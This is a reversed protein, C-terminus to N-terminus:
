LLDFQLTVKASETVNKNKKKPAEVGLEEFCVGEIPALVHTTSKEEIDIV